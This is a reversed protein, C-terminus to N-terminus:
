LRKYGHPQDGAPPQSGFLGGSAKPAFVGQYGNAISNKLAELAVDRGMAELKGILRSLGVPGLPQHRQERRSVQFDALAGRIEPTDLAVPLPMSAMDVEPAKPKRAKKENMRDPNPNDGQFPTPPQQGTRDQGTRPMADASGNSQQPQATANGHCTQSAHFREWRAKAAGSQRKSFEDAVAREAELRRNVLLGDRVEFCPRVQAWASDWDRVRGACLRRLFREDSVLKGIQWERSLLFWYLGVAEFDMVSVADSGWFDAPYFPFSPRPDNM